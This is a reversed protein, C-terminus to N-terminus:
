QLANAKETGTSELQYKYRCLFQAICVAIVPVSPVRNVHAFPQKRDAVNQVERAKEMQEGDVFV